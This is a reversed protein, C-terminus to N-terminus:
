RRAGYLSQVPIGTRADVADAVSEGAPADGRLGHEPSYLQVLQFREDRALRDVTPVLAGDVGAPNTVLALKKGRVLEVRESLLVDIGLTVQGAAHPCALALATAALMAGLGLRATNRAPVREPGVLAESM